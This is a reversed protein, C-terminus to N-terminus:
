WEKRFAAALAANGNQEVAAKLKAKVREDQHYAALARVIEAGFAPSVEDLQALLYDTAEQQPARSV